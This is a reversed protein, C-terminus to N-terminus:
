KHYKTGKQINLARYVSELLILRMLQHPFTLKSISLRVDAAKKVAPSLGFSSGIVFCIEHSRMNAKEMLQALEHSSIQQGEVCLAVWFARPHKEELIHKGEEELAAAIEADSPNDPLRCEKLETVEIPSFGQIRKLYEACAERLYGEKLKGVTIIRIM